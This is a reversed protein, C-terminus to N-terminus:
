ESRTRQVNRSSANLMVLLSATYLKRDVQEPVCKTSGRDYRAVSPMAKQNSRHTPISGVLAAPGRGLVEPTVARIAPFWCRMLTARFFLQTSHLSALSVADPLLAQGLKAPAGAVVQVYGVSNRRM